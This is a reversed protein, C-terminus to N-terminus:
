ASVKSATVRDGARKGTVTVMVLLRLRM